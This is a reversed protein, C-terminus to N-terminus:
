KWAVSGTAKAGNEEIEVWVKSGEPLKAPADCHGHLQSEGDKTLKGKMSGEGSAVGIWARVTTPLPKGAPFKLYLVAEEGAQVAGAQVVEFTHAGVTLNGLSQQPGHGHDDVPPQATNNNAPVITTSGKSGCAPLLLLFPVVCALLKM